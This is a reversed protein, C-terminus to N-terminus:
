RTPFTPQPTAGHQQPVYLSVPILTQACSGKDPSTLPSLSYRVFPPGAWSARWFTIRFLLKKFLM